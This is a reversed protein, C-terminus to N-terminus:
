KSTKKKKKQEAAVEAVYSQLRKQSDILPHLSVDAALNDSAYYSFPNDLDKIFYIMYVLMFSVFSVFFLSEVFPDMKIIVLGVLLITTIIEAIAYGAGIFSTERITHVRKVLKRLMNQEQKLRVIFNAQTQDEFALFDHNFSRVHQMITETREKKWFWDLLMTNLTVLKQLFAQSEPTHKNEYIILGEDAMTELSASMEAPIKESEKYDVLTGSVLFSILFINASIIATFLSNLELFEYGLTHVIYKIGVVLFVIPLTRIAIHWKSSIPLKTILKHMYNSDATIEGSEAM